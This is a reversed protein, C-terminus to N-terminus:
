GSLSRVAIVSIAILFVLVAVIVRIRAYPRGVEISNRSPESKDGEPPRMSPM